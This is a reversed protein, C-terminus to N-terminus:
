REGSGHAHCCVAQIAEYMKQLVIPKNVSGNAGAALMPALEEPRSYATLAIIPIQAVAGNLRRIRRTAEPGDIGPMSMDMLVLDFPSQQVAAIAAEGDEVLEVDCGLKALLGRAVIRNTEVDEAVLIRPRRGEPHILTLDGLSAPDSPPAVEQQPCEIWFCCGNGGPGEEVGIRGGKLDVIRKCIALGLGSGGSETGDLYLQEFDEFLQRRREVPIGGGTDIVEFRIWGPRLAGARVVIGGEKTFKIANSLLNDIVQRVRHRDELVWQVLPLGFAGRVVKFSLGKEAAAKAWFGLAEQLLDGIDVPAENLVLKGSEARELDIIDDLLLRLQEGSARVYRLTEHQGASLGGEDFLELMGLVGNMPTRIDHSMMALFRTKAANAADAVDRAAQLDANLQELEILRLQDRQRLTEAENAAELERTVDQLTLFILAHNLEEDFASQAMVKIMRNPMHPESGRIRVTLALDCMPEDSSQSCYESGLSLSKPGGPKGACIHENQPGPQAIARRAIEATWKIAKKRDETIVCRLMPRISTLRLSGELGLMAQCYPSQEGRMASTDWVMTGFGAVRQADLLQRTRQDLETALLDKHYNLSEIAEALVRSKDELLAEAQRRAAESRAFRRRLLALEEELITPDQLTIQPM